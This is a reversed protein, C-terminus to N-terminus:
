FVVATSFRGAVVMGGLAIGLTTRYNHSLQLIQHTIASVAYWKCEPSHWKFGPFAADKYESCMFIGHPDYSISDLCRSMKALSSTSFVFIEVFPLKHSPSYTGQPQVRLFCNIEPGFYKQELFQVWNRCIIGTGYNWINLLKSSEPTEQSQQFLIIFRIPICSFRRWSDAIDEERLNKGRQHKFICDPGGALLLSM